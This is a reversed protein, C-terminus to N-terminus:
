QNFLVFLIRLEFQFDVIVTYYIRFKHTQPLM